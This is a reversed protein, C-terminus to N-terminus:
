DLHLGLAFRSDIRMPASDEVGGQLGGLSPRHRATGAGPVRDARRWLPDSQHRQRHQGRRHVPLAPAAIGGAPPALSTDRSGALCPHFHRRLARRASLGRRGIILMALMEISVDLGFMDLSLSNREFALLCGAVGAYVASLFFARLKYGFVNIGLLEAALDNDRVSIFARGTRTRIINRALFMLLVSLPVIIYYMGIDTAFSLAKGRTIRAEVTSEGDSGLTIRHEGPKTAIFSFGTLREMEDRYVTM